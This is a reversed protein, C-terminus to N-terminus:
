FDPELQSMVAAGGTGRCDERASLFQLLQEALGGCCSHSLGVYSCFWSVCVIETLETHTVLAGGQMVFGQFAAEGGGAVRSPLPRPHAPMLARSAGPLPRQGKGGRALANVKTDVTPGERYGVRRKFRSLFAPEAPRVYSVQNRKSMAVPRAEPRSAALGGRGKRRAGM